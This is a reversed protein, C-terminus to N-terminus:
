LNFKTIIDNKLVEFALPSPHLGNFFLKNNYQLLHLLDGKEKEKLIDEEPIVNNLTDWKNGLYFGYYSHCDPLDRDFIKSRLSDIKYEAWDLLGNNRLEGTGGIIAWKTDPYEKKIESAYTYIKHATLDIYKELGRKKLSIADYSKLLESHFWIILDINFNNKKAAALTTDIMTLQYYNDTGGWSRNYVSHGRSMLTYDLSTLVTEDYHHNYHGHQEATPLRYLTTQVIGWTDGAILIRKM